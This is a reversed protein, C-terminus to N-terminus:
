VADTAGEEVEEKKTFVKALYLFPTDCIGVVVEVLTSAVAISLIQAPEFVGWFAMAAFGFNEACNFLITSVNNRVWMYRGGTLQKLKNYLWVDGFNSILFWFMSALTIRINLGFMASMHPNITDISSPQYALAIVMAILYVINGFLGVWVGKKADEQSYYENLIDTALFTSSFLVHGIGAYLGLLEANKSQVVNALVAALGIWVFVGVKGFFRKACLLATFCFAIEILLIVNNM